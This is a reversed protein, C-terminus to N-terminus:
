FVICSLAPPHLMSNINQELSVLTGTKYSLNLLYLSSRSVNFDAHCEFWANYTQRRQRPHFIHIALYVAQRRREGGGRKRQAGLAAIWPTARLESDDLPSGNIVDSM